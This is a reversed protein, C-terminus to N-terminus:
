LLFRDLMPQLREWVRDPTIWAFQEEESQKLLEFDVAVDRPSIGQYRESANPLWKDKDVNPPYIAFGPVHFAQAIHRPGGENGFFFDVQTFMAGLKRLTDAEINIFIHEDNQMEACLLLAARKEDKSYNFILQADYQKIMRFLVEKMREKSWMKGIVRTLPACVVVPRSFDIGQQEMYSRFDARERESVSLHFDSIYELPKLQELPQLLALNRAVEDRTDRRQQNKVRYNHLFVNYYKWTGIRFKSSFSFLSFWLTKLTARTDVIVDYHETQMLLKVKRLYSLFHCNEGHSFTIVRDIAPHQEFMDGMYADVVYHIEAGPFNKRLTSCIVTSLVADGIRRFRIVLVKKIM